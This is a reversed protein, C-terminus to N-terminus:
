GSVLQARGLTRPHNPQCLFGRRSLGRKCRQRADSDDDYQNKTIHTRWAQHVVVAPAAFERRDDFDVIDKVHYPSAGWRAAGIVPFPHHVPRRRQHGAGVDMKWGHAPPGHGITSDSQATTALYLEKPQRNGVIVLRIHLGTQHADRFRKKTFNKLKPTPYITAKLRVGHDNKVRLRRRVMRPSTSCRQSRHEYRECRRGKSQRPVMREAAFAWRRLRTKSRLGYKGTGM